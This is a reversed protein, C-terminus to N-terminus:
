LQYFFAVYWHQKSVFQPLQLYPSALSIVHIQPALDVWITPWLSCPHTGLSGLVLGIAHQALSVCLLTNPYSLSCLNGIWPFIPCFSPFSPYFNTYIFSLNLKSCMHTVMPLIKFVFYALHNFTWLVFSNDFKLGYSKTHKQLTNIVNYVISHL